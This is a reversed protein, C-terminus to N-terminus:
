VTASQPTGSTASITAAAGATNTLSFSTPTVVGSAAASVTFAGAHTDATIAESVQGNVDTTATITTTSNSFTGSAGTTAPATFTVTVGAVPNNSADRVTVVLSSGFPTAVTTSQPTGSTATITAPTTTNTLSFSTPTAVGAAAATVSYSGA